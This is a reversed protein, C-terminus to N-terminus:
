TIEIKKLERKSESEELKKLRRDILSRIALLIEKYANIMHSRFEEPVLEDPTPIKIRIERAM